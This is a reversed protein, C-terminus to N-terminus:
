RCGQFLLPWISEDWQVYKLLLEDDKLKGNKPKGFISKKQCFIIQNAVLNKTITMQFTM